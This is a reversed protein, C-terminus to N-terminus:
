PKVPIVLSFKQGIIKLESILRVFQINISIYLISMSVLSTKVHIQKLIDFYLKKHAM